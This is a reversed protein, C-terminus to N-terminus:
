GMATIVVAFILYGISLLMSLGGVIMGAMALGSGGYIDPENNANRYGIFGTIIAGAGLPIGLYCCFFLSGIIACVLSVIPLTQDLKGAEPIPEATQQFIQQQQSSFNPTPNGSSPTSSFPSNANREDRSVHKFGDNTVRPPDLVVTPPGDSSHEEILTEGDELCFNVNEDNYTSNCKPCVKM